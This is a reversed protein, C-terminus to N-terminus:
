NGWYVDFNEIDKLTINYDGNFKLARDDIYIFAPSKVKTVDKFYKDIGNSKLWETAQKSSRTTFLVLEYNKSLEKVFDKAGDKISPIEKTYTTYNDLVGYLDIMITKRIPKGLCLSTNLTLLILLSFFKKM